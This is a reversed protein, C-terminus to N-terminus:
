LVNVDILRVTGLESLESLVSHLAQKEVLWLVFDATEQRGPRRLLSFDTGKLTGM